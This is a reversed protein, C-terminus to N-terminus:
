TLSSSCHSGLVDIYLICSPTPPQSPGLTMQAASRGHVFSSETYLSCHIITLLLRKSQTYFTIIHLATIHYISTFHTQLCPFAVLLFRNILLAYLTTYACLHFLISSMHAEYKNQMSILLHLLLHQHCPAAYPCSYITSISALKLNQMYKANFHALPLLLTPACIKQAVPLEAKYNKMEFTHTTYVRTYRLCMYSIHQQQSLQTIQHYQQALLVNFKMRRFHAAKWFIIQRYQPLLVLLQLIMFGCWNVPIPQWRSIIFVSDSITTVANHNHKISTIRM